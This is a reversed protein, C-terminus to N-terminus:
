KWIYFQENFGEKIWGKIGALQLIGKRM